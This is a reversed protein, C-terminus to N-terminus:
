CGCGNNWNNGCGNNNFYGNFGNCCYPNPVIYAPEPCKNIQSIVYQSEARSNALNLQNQLDAMRDTTMRDLIARFGNNQNEIIDRTNNSANTTIACTNTAMQYEIDKLGSQTKCCCDALQSQLANANQLAVINAANANQMNAIGMQNISDQIAYTNQMGAVTVSNIGQQTQYGLTCVANDVGAFSAQVTQGLGQSAAQTAAFGNLTNTNQAYFGDCLGEQIGRIGNEMSQFNMDQCLEGRTLAGQFGAGNVGNNGNNGWGNNGNGWGCFVFLFLIIIWWAGDGGFAGDNYGSRNNCGTAAAIDALSYGSGGCCNSHNFM